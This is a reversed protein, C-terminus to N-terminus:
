LETNPLRQCKSPLAIISRYKGLSSFFCNNTTSHNQLCCFMVLLAGVFELRDPMLHTGARNEQPQRYVNHNELSFLWGVFVPRMMSTLSYASFAVSKLLNWWSFLTIHPSPRISSVSPTNLQRFFKLKAVTAYKTTVQCIIDLWPSILSLLNM